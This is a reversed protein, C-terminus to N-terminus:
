PSSRKKHAKLYGPGIYSIMSEYPNSQFGIFLIEVNCSFTHCVARTQLRCKVCVGHTIHTVCNREEVEYSVIVIDLHRYGSGKLKLLNIECDRPIYVSM